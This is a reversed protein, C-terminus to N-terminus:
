GGIRCMTRLLWKMFDHDRVRWRHGCLCTIYYRDSEFRIDRFRGLGLCHYCLLFRREDMNALAQVLRWIVMLAGFLVLADVLTPSYRRLGIDLAVLLIIEVIARVVTRALYNRVSRKMLERKGENM